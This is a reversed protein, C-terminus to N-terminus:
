GAWDSRDDSYALRTPQTTRRRIDALLTDREQQALARLQAAAAAETGGKLLLTAAAQWVLIYESHEPFPVSINDSSLDRLATPKTNVFVTAALSASVPLLQLYAGAVYYQRGWALTNGQTLTATPVAAFETPAYSATGDSVSLIRYWNTQSDGSGGNLDTLLVRGQSDTTVSRQAFTYYPAANLINSWEGDHVSNAVSIITADSWRQSQAADMYERIATVLQGRTMTAM